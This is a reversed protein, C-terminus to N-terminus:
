LSGIAAQIENKSFEPIESKNDGSKQGKTSVNKEARCQDYDEDYDNEEGYIESYFEGFVIAIEKRSTVTGGKASKM